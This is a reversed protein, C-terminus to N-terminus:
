EGDFTETLTVTEGDYFYFPHSDVFVHAFKAFHQLVTPTVVLDDTAVFLARHEQVIVSMRHNSNHLAAPLTSCQPLSRLTKYANSDPYEVLGVTLTHM